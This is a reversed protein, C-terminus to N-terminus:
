SSLWPKMGDRQRRNLFGIELAGLGSFSTGRVVSDCMVGEPRANGWLCTAGSTFRVGAKM